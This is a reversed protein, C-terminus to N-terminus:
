AQARTRRGQRSLALALVGAFGLAATGPEPVHSGLDLVYQLQSAGLAQNYLRIDALFGDFARARDASRNGVALVQAAGFDITVAGINTPSGVMSVPTNEGGIYFRVDAGDYTVAFFVWQETASYAAGTTPVTHSGGGNSDNAMLQLNGDTNSVLVLRNNNDVYHDFLFTTRAGTPGIMDTGATRFWGSITFATLPGLDFSGVVAGGDWAMDPTASNDFVPRTLAGPGAGAPTGHLDTPNNDFDVMTASGGLSGHNIVTSGAEDFTFHLLLEAHASAAISVVVVMALSMRRMM